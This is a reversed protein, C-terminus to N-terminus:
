SEKEEMPRRVKYLIYIEKKEKINYINKSSWILRVKPYILRVKLM